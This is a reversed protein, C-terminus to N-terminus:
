VFTFHSLNHGLKLKQNNDQRMKKLNGIGYRKKVQNILKFLLLGVVYRSFIIYMVKRSTFVAKELFMMARIFIWAHQFSPAMVCGTM